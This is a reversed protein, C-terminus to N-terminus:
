FPLGKALSTCRSTVEGLVVREPLRATPPDTGGLGRDTDAGGPEVRRATDGRRESGPARVDVAEDGGETPVTDPEIGIGTTREPGKRRHNYWMPVNVSLRKWRMVSAGIQRLATMIEQQNQDVLADRRM